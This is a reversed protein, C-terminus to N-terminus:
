INATFSWAGSVLTFQKAAATDICWVRCITNNQHEAVPYIKNLINSIIQADSLTGANISIALPATQVYLEVTQLNAADTASAPNKVNIINKSSVNVTGSAGQPVLIIDGNGGGASYYSITSGNFRLSAVSLSTLLGVSTLGPASTVTNGLTTQSLVDFSGIKFTKGSALAINESSLWATKAKNWTLTKDGDLGGELLLGGGDATDNTPIATKGISILIDEIEITTQNVATINGEVTLSGQILVDGAVDLMATPVDTYLGIRKNAADIHLSPLLGDGSLSNIEFNQNQINSNIQVLGNGINIETNQNNGLVLPTDNLISLTGYTASNDTSSVFSEVTKLSGDAAILASAESVPVDFKVGSWTSVNFGISVSGSFQPIDILPTFATKSFLGLISGGVWLLSITQTINNTDVVDITQLGSIGQQATYTPGALVTSVGDNFYLQQRYSDIWIDGQAISSPVTNSVVTGGSVKWGTGSYVKLRAETTDYWLQGTQPHNPSSTSAFNELLHVFNENLFEGYTSANKGVLTLDTASQDVTGDVIETLVSGDTKNIIYSM